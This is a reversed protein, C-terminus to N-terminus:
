EDSKSKPLAYKEVWERVNKNYQERDTLYLNAAVGELPSNPNPDVLLSSLSLLIKLISLAPSWAGPKLIDLCIEGNRAMINPHYVKTVFKVNPPEFPYKSPIHIKLFFEGGYYPSDEPGLIKADWEYLSGDNKPKASINEPCEKQIEIFEKQIRKLSM